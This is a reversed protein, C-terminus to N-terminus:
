KVIMARIVEDNKFIAIEEAFKEAFYKFNMSQQLRQDKCFLTSIGYQKIPNDSLDWTSMVKLLQDINAADEINKILKIQEPIDAQQSLTKLYNFTVSENIFKKVRDGISSEVAQGQWWSLSFM